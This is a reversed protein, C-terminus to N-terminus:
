NSLRVIHLHVTAAFKDCQAHNCWLPEINESCAGCMLDCEQSTNGFCCDCVGDPYMQERIDYTTENWCNFHTCYTRASPFRGRDSPDLDQLLLLSDPADPAPSWSGVPDDTQEHVSGQPGHEGPASWSGVTGRSGRSLEEQAPLVSGYLQEEQGPLLSSDTWCDKLAFYWSISDAGFQSTLVLTSV